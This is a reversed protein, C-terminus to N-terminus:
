QRAAVNIKAVIAANRMERSGNANARHYQESRGIRALPRRATGFDGYDAALNGTRGTGHWDHFAARMAGTQGFEVRAIEDLEHTM